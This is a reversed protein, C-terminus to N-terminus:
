KEKEPQAGISTELAPIDYNTPETQTQHNHQHRFTSLTQYVVRRARNIGGLPHHAALSHWPNFSLNIGYANQAPNDFAQHPITLTAVKIFPSMQESWRRGPDEVPMRQPDTQLQVCFDFDYDKEALQKVMTQRLFDPGADVPLHTVVGAHPILSYKVIQQPGLQYPTTSWYRTQLPSAYNKNSRLLNLLSRPHFLFHRLLALKGSVLAKILYFFEEVDHTVFMPTSITIFDQSTTNGNNADLKEGPVNMLKIAAGRIDKKRDSQIPANQNSFRVWADYRKGPVFVGHQLNQPLDKAVTFTAKVLGHQKPHADREMFQPTERVMKAHLLEILKDRFLDENIPKSEHSM